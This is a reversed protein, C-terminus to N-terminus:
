SFGGDRLLSRLLLRYEDVTRPVTTSLRWHAVIDLGEAEILGVVTESNGVDIVLDM